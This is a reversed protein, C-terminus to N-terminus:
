YGNNIAEQHDDRENQESLAREQPTTPISDMLRPAGMRHLQDDTRKVMDELALVNTYGQMMRELRRIKDPPADSEKLSQLRRQARTYYRAMKTMDINERVALLARRNSQMVDYQVMALRSSTTRPTAITELPALAALMGDLQRDRVADREAVLAARMEFVSREQPSPARREKYLRRGINHCQENLAALELNMNRVPRLRRSPSPPAPTAAKPSAAPAPRVPFTPQQRQQEPARQRQQFRESARPPSPPQQPPAATYIPARNRPQPMAEPAKWRADVGAQLAPPRPHTGQRAANPASTALAPQSQATKTAPAGMCMSPLQKRLMALSKRASALMGQRSKAAGQATGAKPAHSLLHPSPTAGATAATDTAAPNFPEPAVPHTSRFFSTLRM